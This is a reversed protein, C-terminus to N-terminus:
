GNENMMGVMSSCGPGGNLWVLLRKKTPIAEPRQKTLWFFFSGERNEEFSIPMYGSYMEDDFGASYYKELGLVRYASKDPITYKNANNSILSFLCLFIKLM